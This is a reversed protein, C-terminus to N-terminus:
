EGWEEVLHCDVSFWNQGDDEQWYVRCSLDAATLKDNAAALVTGIYCTINFRDSELDIFASRTENVYCYHLITVDDPDIINTTTSYDAAIAHQLHYLFVLEVNTIGFNRVPEQEVNQGSLSDATSVVQLPLMLGEGDTAMKQRIVSFQGGPRNIMASVNELFVVLDCNFKLREAPERQESSYQQGAMFGMSGATAICIVLCITTVLVLWNKREKFM